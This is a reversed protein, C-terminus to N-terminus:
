QKEGPKVGGPVARPLPQQPLMSRITVVSNAVSNLSQGKLNVTVNSGSGVPRFGDLIPAVMPGILAMPGGGGPNAAKDKLDDLSANVADTLQRASKEDTTAATAKIGPDNGLTIALTMWKGASIVPLADKMFKPTQERAIAKNIDGKTRADPIFVLGLAADPMTALADVFAKTRDADVKEPPTQNKQHMVVWNDMQEFRVDAVQKEPMDQTMVKEIAKVDAGAKVHYYAVPPNMSRNRAEANPDAGLQGEADAVRQSSTGIITVSQVGAKTAKEYRDTFAAIFDKASEANDGLVVTAATRLLGPTLHEVDAHIVFVTDAGISDPPLDAPASFTNGTTLTTLLAMAALIKMRLM